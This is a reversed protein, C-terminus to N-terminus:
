FAPIIAGKYKEWIFERMKESTLAEKLAQIDPRNEDGKRVVLVNAYPSDVDELVLADMLPSIKAQLAYNTNIVALDVDDLARPLMSADVEIFKLHKPNDMINLVSAERDDSSLRILGQEQLLLLARAANTPDNPIAVRANNLDSLSQIKKSCIGMPEIEVVAISVLPYHFQEIQQKLFFTHQFFNADVEGEALARNPMNYDSTLVIQLHIGQAKLDSKIFELMHAHPVETAAVKLTQKSGSACGFFLIFTVGICLTFFRKIKSM